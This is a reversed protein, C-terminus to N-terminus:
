KAEKFRQRFGKKKTLYVNGAWKMQKMMVAHFQGCMGITGEPTSM